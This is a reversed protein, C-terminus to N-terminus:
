QWRNEGGPCAKGDRVASVLANKARVTRDWCHGETDKYTYMETSTDIPESTLNGTADFVLEDVPKVEDTM